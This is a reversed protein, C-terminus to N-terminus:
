VNEQRQFVCPAVRRLGVSAAPAEAKGTILFGGPVLSDALGRWLRVSAHPELYIAMNRCLIVDWSTPQCVDFVNECRWEIQDILSEVERRHPHLSADAHWRLTPPLSSLLDDVLALDHRPDVPRCDSGRLQSGELLGQGALLLAVSLLELGRSCGVSWVRPAPQGLSHLFGLRPIVVHQLTQFVDSDRFAQTHGILLAALARRALAPNVRIALLAQEVNQCRAVRLAARFRRRIPPVRYDELSLGATQFLESVFLREAEALQCVLPPVAMPLSGVAGAWPSRIPGAKPRGEFRVHDLLEM